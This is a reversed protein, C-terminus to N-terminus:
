SALACSVLGSPIRARGRWRGRAGLGLLSVFGIALLPLTGPEPVPAVSDAQLGFANNDAGFSQVMWDGDALQFFVNYQDAPSTTDLTADAVEGPALDSGASTADLDEGGGSWTGGFPDTTIRSESWGPATFTFTSDALSAVPFIEIQEVDEAIEGTWEFTDRYAPDAPVGFARAMPVPAISKQTMALTNIVDFTDVMSKGGYTANSAATIQNQQGATSSLTISGYLNATTYNGAGPVPTPGAAQANTYMNAQVAKVAAALAATAAANEAALGQADNISSFNWWGGNSNGANLPVSDPDAVLLQNPGAGLGAVALAHFTSTWWLSKQPPATPTIALVDTWGNNYALQAVAMPTFTTAETRGALKVMVTGNAAVKFSTDSLAVGGTNKTPGFNLSDLYGNVSTGEDGGSARPALIANESAAVWKGATTIDTSGFLKAYPTAGKATKYQTWPYLADIIAAYWCFGAKGNLEAENLAENKGGNAKFNDKNWGEWGDMGPPVNANGMTAPLWAQHQYFDPVPSAPAAQAPFYTVCPTAALAVSLSRRVSRPRSRLARIGPADSRMTSSLKVSIM